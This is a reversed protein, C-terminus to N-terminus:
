GAVAFWRNKLIETSSGYPHPAGDGEASGRHNRGPRLAEASRLPSAEAGGRRARRVRREGFADAREPPPHRVGNAMKREYSKVDSREAAFDWGRCSSDGDGRPFMAIKRMGDRADREAREDREDQM